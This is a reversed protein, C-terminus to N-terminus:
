APGDGISGDHGAKTRFKELEDKKVGLLERTDAEPLRATFAMAILDQRTMGLNSAAFDFAYHLSIRIASERDLDGSAVLSGILDFIDTDSYYIADEIYAEASYGELSPDDEGGVAEIEHTTIMYDYCNM